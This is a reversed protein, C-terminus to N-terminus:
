RVAMGERRRVACEPPHEMRDCVGAWAADAPYLEEDALEGAVARRWAEGAVGRLEEPWGSDAAEYGDPHLGPNLYAVAFWLKLFDERPLAALDACKLRM